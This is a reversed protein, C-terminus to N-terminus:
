DGQMALILAMVDRPIHLSTYSGSTYTAEDDDVSIEVWGDRGVEIEAKYRGDESVFKLTDESSMSWGGPLNDVLVQIDISM